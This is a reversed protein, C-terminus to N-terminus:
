RGEQTIPLRVTFRTRGPQSEVRITGHHRELIGFVVDLGLGTGEGVRKTTFFPEFIHSQIAEPIGPGSDEIAVCVHAGDRRTEVRLEGEEKMADLANDILNTWVQSLEGPHAQVLPLDAAYDRDITVARKTRHAFMKLTLELTQHIDTPQVAVRDMYSYEKVAKVLESVRAAASGLNDVISRTNAISAAHSIVDALAEAPVAPVLRDLAGVDPLRDALHAPASGAEVRHRALWGAIADERDARDLPDLGAPEEALADVLSQAAARAEDGLCHAHVRETASELELLVDCLVSADRKIAASPNNLEHALGAALKGLAVLKERQLENRTTERTRDIMEWVLRQVLGPCERVLAPFHDKHLAALRSPRIARGTGPSVQMRSYPLMGFIEGPRVVWIVGDGNRDVVEMEGDLLIALDDVPQGFHIYEEGPSVEWVRLRPLLWTLEEAPLDAMQPIRRLDDVTLAPLEPM